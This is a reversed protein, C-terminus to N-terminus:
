RKKRQVMMRTMTSMMSGRRQSMPDQHRGRKLIFFQSSDLDLKQALMAGLSSLYETNYDIKRELRDVKGELRDMRDSLGKHEEGKARRRRRRPRDM